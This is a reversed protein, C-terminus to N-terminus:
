LVYRETIFDFNFRVRHIANQYRMSKDKYKWVAARGAEGGECILLDGYKLSYREEEEEEFKMEKVGEKKWYSPKLVRDIFQQQKNQM